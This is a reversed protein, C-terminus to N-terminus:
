LRSKAGVMHIFIKGGSM